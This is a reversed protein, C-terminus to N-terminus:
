LGSLNMTSKKLGSYQGLASSKKKEGMGRECNKLEEFTLTNIATIWILKEIKPALKDAREM